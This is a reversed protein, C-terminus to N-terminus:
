PARLFLRAISGPFRSSLAAIQTLNASLLYAAIFSLRNNLPTELGSKGLRCWNYESEFSPLFDPNPLKWKQLFNSANYCFIEFNELVCVSRNHFDIEMSIPANLKLVETLTVPTFNDM